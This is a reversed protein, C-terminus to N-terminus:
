HTPVPLLVPARPACPAPAVAPPYTDDAVYVFLTRDTPVTLTRDKGVFRAEIPDLAVTTGDAPQLVEFRLRLDGQTGTIRRRRAKLVIGVGKTCRPIVTVGGARVDRSVIFNFPQGTQVTHSSLPEMLRVPVWSHALLVGPKAVDAHYTPMPTPTVPAFAPRSVVALIFSFWGVLLLM